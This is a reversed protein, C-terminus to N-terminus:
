AMATCEFYGPLNASTFGTSGLSGFTASVMASHFFVLPATAMRSMIFRSTEVSGASGPM